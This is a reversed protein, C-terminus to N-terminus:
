CYRSVLLGIASERRFKRRRDCIKPLISLPRFKLLLLYEIERRFKFDSGVNYRLLGKVIAQLVCGRWMLLSFSRRAAAVTSDVVLDDNNATGKPRHWYNRYACRRDCGM